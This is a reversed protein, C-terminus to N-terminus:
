GTLRSKSSNTEETSKDTPAGPLPRWHVTFGNAYRLDVTAIEAIRASLVFPYVDVFRRLREVFDERGLDLRVGNHLTIRWARREDQALQDIRLDVRGLLASAAGYMEMLVQEQGVPGVLRPWPKALPLRAPQFRKGDRDLLEREGWYGFVDRERVAIELSDPWLRTVVVQELWPIAALTRSLDQIDLVFFNQGLYSGLLQQLEAIPLNRLEGRLHIHRVPYHEPDALRQAAYGAALGMGAVVLLMSLWRRWLAGRERWLNDNRSSAGRRRRFM